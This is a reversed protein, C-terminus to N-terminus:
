TLIQSPPSAKDTTYTLLIRGAAKIPGPVSYSFFRTMTLLLMAVYSARCVEYIYTAGGAFGGGGCQNWNGRNWFNWGTSIIM